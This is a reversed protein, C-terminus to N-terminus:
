LHITVTFWRAREARIGCNVTINIDLDKPQRACSISLHTTQMDESHSQLCISVSASILSAYKLTFLKTYLVEGSAKNMFSSVYNSIYIVLYQQQRRLIVHAIRILKSSNHTAYKGKFYM